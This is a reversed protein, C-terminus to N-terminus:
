VNLLESSRVWTEGWSNRVIFCRQQDFYGVALMAHWTHQTSPPELHPQPMPVIGGNKEAYAFSSFTQIGFAFPYGEALCAKMEDLNNQVKMGQQIRYRKAESYCAASPRQNLREIRYPHLAEKCCGFETLAAIASRILTGNDQMSHDQMGDKQRSNYYIFLRSVDVHVGKNKM